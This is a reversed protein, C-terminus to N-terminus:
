KNNPVINRRWKLSRRKRQVVGYRHKRRVFPIINIYNMNIGDNRIGEMQWCMTRVSNRIEKGERAEYGSFFVNIIKGKHLIKSGMSTRFLVM